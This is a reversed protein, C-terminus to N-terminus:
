PTIGIIKAFSEERWAQVDLRMHAVFGIQLNERFLQNLVEIRLRQRFGIILDEFNGLFITSANTASGQTQDVPIQTTQYFPLNGISNPRQLPQGTTDTLGSFGRLTRPAMIAATTEGGNDNQMEMISDLLPTYDSLQGGDTGMSITNVDAYNDLGTPSTNTGDGLLAARDVELALAQALSNQLASEINVSDQLLEESVKVMVALSKAEFEVRGFTPDSEEVPAAEVRWAPTPDSILKAFHHKNSDLPIAGAGAQFVRSKKRMLDIMSTSLVTPVTYGGASNTGEALARREIDNECGTVLARLTSGLTLSGYRDELEESDINRTAYEEFSNDRRLLPVKRGTREDRFFECDPFKGDPNLHEYGAPFKGDPAASVNPRGPSPGRPRSEHEKQLADYRKTAAKWQKEDDASWTRAEDNAKDALIRVERAAEQRELLNSM